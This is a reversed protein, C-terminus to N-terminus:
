SEFTQILSYPIRMNGGSEPDYLIPGPAGCACSISTTDGPQVRIVPNGCGLCHLLVEQNNM